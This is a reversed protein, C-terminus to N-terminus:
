LQEAKEETQAGTSFLDNKVRVTLSYDSDPDGTDAVQDTQGGHMCHSDYDSMLM